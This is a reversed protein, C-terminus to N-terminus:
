DRPRGLGTLADWASKEAAENRIGHKKAVRDYNRFTASRTSLGSYLVGFRRWSMDSTLLDIGYERM